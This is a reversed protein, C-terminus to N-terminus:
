NKKKKRFLGNKKKNLVPNPRPAKEFVHDFLKEKYIWLGEEPVYGEYSGDPLYTSGQGEIRGMRPILHDFIILNLDENFNLSVSADDAYRLVLRSKIDVSKKFVEKGFNPVGEDFSLVEAIKINEFKDHHNVGFLIYYGESIQKVNYYIAGLWTDTTRNEFEVDLFDSEEEQLVFGTGDAKQLYGFYSFDNESRKLEWTLIRFANDEPSQISIWKLWILSDQPNEQIYSEFLTNFKEGALVRNKDDVANLMVDGYFYLQDKLTDQASAM